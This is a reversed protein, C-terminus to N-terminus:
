AAARWGRAAALRRQIAPHKRLHCDIVSSATVLRGRYIPLGAVFAAVADAYDSGQRSVELHAQRTRTSAHVRRM